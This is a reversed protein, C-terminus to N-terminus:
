LVNLLQASRWYCGHLWGNVAAIESSTSTVDIEVIDRGDHLEFVPQAVFALLDMRHWLNTWHGISDPLRVRKGKEYHPLGDRPAMVHFFAPQSGFTVLRNVHLTRREAGLAADLVLLGGLSHAMVNIPQARTGWGPAEADLTEFLRQHIAARNQHYRVVDGLTLAVPMAMKKRLVQNLTGGLQGTIKGILADAAQIVSAIKDSCGARVAIGTPGAAHTASPDGLAAVVLEAVSHLLAVDDEDKIFRTARVAEVTAKRIIQEDASSRVANTAAAPQGTVIAAIIAAADTEGAVAQARTGTPRASAGPFIGPLTEDLHAGVGGLDGWFVHVLRYDDALGQQLFATTERFAVESRNGVGHVILLPAIAM